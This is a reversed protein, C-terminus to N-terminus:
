VLPKISAIYLTQANVQRFIIAHELVEWWYYNSTLPICNDPLIRDGIFKLEEIRILLDFTYPYNDLFYSKAEESYDIQRM